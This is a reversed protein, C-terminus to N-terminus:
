EGASALQCGVVLRTGGSRSPAAPFRRAVAVGRRSRRARASRSAPRDAPLACEHFLDVQRPLEREPTPLGTRSKCADESGHDRDRRRLGAACPRSQQAAIRIEAADVDPDAGVASGSGPPDDLLDTETRDCSRRAAGARSREATTGAAGPAPRPGAACGSVRSFRLMRHQAGCLVPAESSARRVRARRPRGAPRSPPSM